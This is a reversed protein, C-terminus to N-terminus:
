VLTALASPKGALAHRYESITWASWLLALAGVGFLAAQRMAVASLALGALPLIQIMHTALFHSVRLDGSSQSWGTFPMRMEHFPVGGVYPSMRAGITFATILTLVTGSILGLAIALRLVDPIAADRNLATVLGTAGAAGIIVVAAIAMVSWMMRHFPTTVNFHSQEGRAAQSIIWGMEIACAILLAIAVIQMVVGFRVSVSMQSTVLALTIAHLALSAEFKLPKAWVSVHGDITRQDTLALVTTVCLGLLCTVAITWFIAEPTPAILRM